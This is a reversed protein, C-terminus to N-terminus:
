KQILILLDLKDILIVANMVLWYGLMIKSYRRGKWLGFLYSFSLIIFQNGFLCDGEFYCFLFAPLESQHM